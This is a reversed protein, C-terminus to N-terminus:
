QLTAYNPIAACIAPYVVRLALYPEFVSLSFTTHVFVSFLQLRLTLYLHFRVTLFSLQRQTAAHTILARAHRSTTHPPAAGPRAGRAAAVSRTRTCERASGPMPPRAHVHALLSPPPYRGRAFTYGGNPYCARSRPLAFQPACAPADRHSAARAHACEHLALARACRTALGGRGGMRLSDMSCATFSSRLSRSSQCCCGLWTTAAYCVKACAEM